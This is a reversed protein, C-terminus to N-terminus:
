RPLPQTLPAIVLEPWAPRDAQPRVAIRVLQPLRKPDDWDDRWGTADFYAFEIKEVGGVLERERDAVSYVLRQGQKSRHVSLTVKQAGGPGLAQVPYAPFSMQAATGSFLLREGRGDRVLLPPMEGIQRRLLSQVARLQSMADGLTRAREAAQMGLPMAMGILLGILGLLSLGVLLEILTFGAQRRRQGNM